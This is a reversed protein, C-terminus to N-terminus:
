IIIKTFCLIFGNYGDLPIKEDAPYNPFTIEVGNKMDNEDGM